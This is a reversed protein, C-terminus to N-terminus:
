PEGLGLDESAAAQQGPGEAVQQGSSDDAAAERLATLRKRVVALLSAGSIGYTLNDGFYRRVTVVRPLRRITRGADRLRILLDLDEAIRLDEDFGGVELLHRRELLISVPHYAPEENRLSLLAIQPPEIGPTLEIREQSVVVDVEPNAALFDMQARVRDPVMLDDSDLFTVFPADTAAIGANRAASPGRNRQSVLRVRAGAEARRRVVEGGGDSSGDDVVVVEVAPYTQALASDVAELVCHRRDFLPIVVAVLPLATV